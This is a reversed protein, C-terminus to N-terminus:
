AWLVKLLEETWKGKVPTLRKELENLIIKNDVEAHGNTQLHEVSSTIQKIDVKKYFEALGRDIFQRDNGTIIIHPIRFQCVINRWVFNQVNRTTITALPEVEIWKTFYNIGVLLFKCQGKGPAFPGIIDM